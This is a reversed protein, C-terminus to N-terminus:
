YQSTWTSLITRCTLNLAVESSDACLSLSALNENIHVQPSFLCITVFILSIILLQHIIDCIDEILWYAMGEGAVSSTVNTTYSGLSKTSSTLLTTFNSLLPTILMSAGTNIVIPLEGHCSSTFITLPLLLSSEYYQNLM